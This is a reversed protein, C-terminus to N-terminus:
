TSVALISLENMAADRSRVVSEIGYELTVSGLPEVLNERWLLLPTGGVLVTCLDPVAPTPTVSNHFARLELGWQQAPLATGGVPPPSGLTSVTNFEPYPFLLALSGANDTLGRALVVGGYLIEVLAWAVPIITNGNIRALRTYVRAVPLAIQRSPASFLPISGTSVITSPSGACALNAYGSVPVNIACTFPQYRGRTDEVDLILSYQRPPPSAPLDHEEFEWAGLFPLKRFYFTNSPTVEAAYRRTPDAPHYATVRLGVGVYFQTVADWFRVGVSAYRKIRELPQRTTMM